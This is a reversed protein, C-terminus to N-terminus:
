EDSETNLKAQLEHVQVELTEVRETLADVQSMPVIEVQVEDPNVKGAGSCYGCIAPFLFHSSKGTGHCIPCAVYKTPSFFSLISM